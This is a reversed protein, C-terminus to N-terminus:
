ESAKIDEFEPPLTANDTSKCLCKWGVCEGTAKRYVIFNHDHEHGVDGREGRDRATWDAPARRPASPSSPPASSPTRASATTRGPWAPAGLGGSPTVRPPASARM